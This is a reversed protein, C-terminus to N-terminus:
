YGGSTGGTTDIFSSVDAINIADTSPSGTSVKKISPLESEKREKERNIFYNVGGYKKKYTNRFENNIYRMPKAKDLYKTKKIRKLLMNYAQKGLAGEEEIYRIKTYYSLWKNINIIGDAEAISLPTRNKIVSTIKQNCKPVIIRQIPFNGVFLNYGDVLKTKMLDYDIIYARDYRSSFVTQTNYINNQKAYPLLGPSLIDAVMVTPALQSVLFGNARCTKLYFPFCPNKLVSQEIEPDVGFDIGAIDIAIGSTFINSKTSRQFSTLTFPTHLKQEKLFIIFHKIFDNLALVHKKINERSLYDFIYRNMLDDIYNNYLTIPSQYAKAIELKSFFPQNNPITGNDRASAMKDKVSMFADHVFDVLRHSSAADSDSNIVKMHRERAYVTNLAIDVRGYLVNEAFSFDLVEPKYIAGGQLADARYLGRYYFAEWASSLKNNARYHSM